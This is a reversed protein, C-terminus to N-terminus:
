VDCTAEEDTDDEPPNMWATFDRWLWSFMDAIM